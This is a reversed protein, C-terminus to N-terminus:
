RDLHHHTRTPPYFPLTVPLGVNHLLFVPLPFFSKQPIIKLRLYLYVCLQMQHEATLSPSPWQQTEGAILMYIFSARKATLSTVSSLKLYFGFSDSSKPLILGSLEKNTKCEAAANIMLPGPENGRVFACTRGWCVSKPDVIQDVFLINSRTQPFFFLLFARGKKTECWPFPNRLRM